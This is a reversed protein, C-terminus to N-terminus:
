MGCGLHEMAGDMGDMMEDMAVVHRDTEERAAALDGVGAMMAHHADMETTMDGHQERMHGMGSGTCHGSMGDMTMDMDGMMGAMAGDHRTMEAHVEDMSTAAAVAAAHVENEARAAAIHDRMAGQDGM